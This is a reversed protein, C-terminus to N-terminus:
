YMHEQMVFYGSSKKSKLELLYIKGLKQHMIVTLLESSYGMSKVYDTDAPLRVWVTHAMRFVSLM